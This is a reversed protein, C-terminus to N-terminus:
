QQDPEAPAEEAPQLETFGRILEQEQESFRNRFRPSNLLREREGLPMDRLRRAAERVADRREPPLRRMSGYLHRIREQQERPLHEFTEMRNLIRDRKEQPLSNFWRLRRRFREQREAPLEQFRRDNELAREQEESSLDKHKRLWDGMHRGKRPGKGRSGYGSRGDEDRRALAEPVCVLSLALAAIIAIVISRIRRM